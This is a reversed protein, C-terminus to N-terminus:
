GVLDGRGLLLLIFVDPLHCARGRRLLDLLSLRHQISARDRRGLKVLELRFARAQAAREDRRRRPRVPRVLLRPRAVRAWRPRLARDAAGRRLWPSHLGPGSRASGTRIRDSWAFVRSCSSTGSRLSRIDWDGNANKRPVAATMAESRARRRGGADADLEAPVGVQRVEAPVGRGVPGQDEVEVVEVLRQRSRPLPVDLPQHGAHLDSGPVPTRRGSVGRCRAPSPAHRGSPSARTRTRGAARRTTSGSVRASMRSLRPEEARTSPGSRM